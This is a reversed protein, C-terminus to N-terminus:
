DFVSDNIAHTFHLFLTCGVDSYHWSSFIVSCCLFVCACLLGYHKAMLRLLCSCRCKRIKLLYTCSQPASLLVADRITPTLLLYNLLNCTVCCKWLISQFFPSFYCYMHLARSLKSDHRIVHFSTYVRFFFYARLLEAKFSGFLCLAKLRLVEIHM